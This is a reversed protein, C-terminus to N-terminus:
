NDEMIDELDAIVIELAEILHKKLSDIRKQLEINKQQEEALQGKLQELYLSQNDRLSESLKLKRQLSYLANQNSEYGAKYNESLPNIM